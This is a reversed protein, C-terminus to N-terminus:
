PVREVSAVEVVPMGILRTGPQKGRLRVTVEPGGQQTAFSKLDGTAWQLARVPTGKEWLVFAGGGPWGPAAEWRIVGTLEVADIKEAPPKPATPPAQGTRRKALLEDSFALRLEAERRLDELLVRALAKTREDAGKKLDIAAELRDEIAAIPARDYGGAARADALAKTAAGTAERLAAEDDTAAAASKKATEARLTERAARKRRGAEIRDANAAVTGKEEVYRSHIYARVEEPAEVILWDGDKALVALVTGKQLRDRFVPQELGPSRRLNVDSGTVRVHEADVKETFEAAVAAGFGAPFRVGLWEGAREVVVLVAGQELTMVAMDDQRPGVRLNVQDGRVVAVSWDADPAAPGAAPPPEDAVARSPAGGALAVLSVAALAAGALSLAPRSVVPSLPGARM